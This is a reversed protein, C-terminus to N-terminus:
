PCIGRLALALLRNAEAAPNRHRETALVVGTVLALLDASTVGAPVAGAGIARRVLPEGADTVQSCAYGQSLETEERMLAVAMGRATAAYQVLAALWDLLAARADEAGALEVARAGLAEVHERFVADLLARRSPFHRRVTAHGVGAARAIQEFSAEAGHEAVEQEAVALIRAYNRRADSRQAHM